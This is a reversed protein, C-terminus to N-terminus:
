KNRTEWIAKQQANPLNVLWLSLFFSLVTTNSEPPLANFKQFFVRAGCFSIRSLRFYATNQPLWLQDLLIYKPVVHTLPSSMSNVQLKGPQCVASKTIFSKKLINRNCKIWFWQLIRLFIEFKIILPFYVVLFINAQILRLQYQTWIHPKPIFIFLSCIFICDYLIYM